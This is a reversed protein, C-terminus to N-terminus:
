IEKGEDDLIFTVQEKGVRDILPELTQRILELSGEWWVIHESSGKFHPLCYPPCIDVRWNTPLEPAIRVFFKSPGLYVSRFGLRYARIHCGFQSM